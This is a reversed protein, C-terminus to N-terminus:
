CNLFYNWSDDGFGLTKIPKLNSIDPAKVGNTFKKNGIIQIIEDWNNNTLFQQITTTGGEVLVSQIGKEFLVKNLTPILKKSEYQIFELHNETASKESNFVLTPLGDKFINTDWFAKELRNVVIIRLPIKGKVLRTSLSPNDKLLTNKGILIAQEEARIQHVKQHSFENSIKANEQDSFIFGDLSEAWKLVYFPRKKETFSFFRKNVNRCEKEMVNVVVEVGNKQLYDIGKGAVLENSDLAGIVVKKINKDVILNCCPPTKGFHACPELNVYLTSESLLDQNKVSHIANVEAHAKGFEQHYGEGIIKNDHVIM